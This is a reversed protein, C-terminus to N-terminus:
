ADLSEVVSALEAKQEKTLETLPPRVFPEIKIGKNIMAQKVVAIPNKTSRRFAFYGLLKMYIKRAEVLKNESVAQYLQKMLGPSFNSVSNFVGASGSVLGHYSYPENGLLINMRGLVRLRNAFEHMDTTADKIAVIGEVEDIIRSLESTSMEFGLFDPANYVVMPLSSSKAVQKFHRILGDLSYKMYFAPLVLIGDAGAKEAIKARASAENTSTSSVGALVPVRGNSEEVSVRIVKELEETTLSSWEGISGCATIMDVKNEVLFRVNARVGEESVSLDSNFPTVTTVLIGKLAQKFDPNKM